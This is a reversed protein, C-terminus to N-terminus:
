MRTGDKTRCCCRVVVVAATFLLTCSSQATELAKARLEKAKM